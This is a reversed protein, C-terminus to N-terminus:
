ARLEPYKTLVAEKNMNHVDASRLAEKKSSHTSITKGNATKVHWEVQETSNHNYSSKREISARQPHGEPFVDGAPAPPTPSSGGGYKGGEGRAGGSGPGGDNHAFRRENDSLTLVVKGSEIRGKVHAEKHRAPVLQTM